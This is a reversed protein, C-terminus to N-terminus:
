LLLMACLIIGQLLVAVMEYVLGYLIAMFACSLLQMVWIALVNWRLRMLLLLICRVLM